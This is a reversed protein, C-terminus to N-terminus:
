LMKRLKSPLEGTIKQFTKRFYYESNFNLQESIQQISLESNALLEVAAHIRLHNLYSVPSIDLHEKFLHYLHSESLFCATAIEHVSSTSAYNAEIYEIAHQLAPPLSKATNQQMHPLLLAMMQYFLGVTQMEQVQDGKALAYMQDILRRVEENPAGDIRQLKMNKWIGPSRKLMSFHVNYFCIDPSGSWHSIYRIGEPVFIIDGAKACVKENMISMEVSGESIYALSNQAKRVRCDYHHTEGQKVLHITLMSLFLHEKMRHKIDM